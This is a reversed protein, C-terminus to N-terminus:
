TGSFSGLGPCSRTLVMGHISNFEAPLSLATFQFIPDNESAVCATPLLEWESLIFRQSVPSIPHSKQSAENKHTAVKLRPLLGGVEANAPGDGETDLALLREM